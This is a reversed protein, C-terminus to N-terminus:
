DKGYKKRLEVLKAAFERGIERERVLADFQANEYLAFLRYLNILDERVGTLFLFLLGGVLEM